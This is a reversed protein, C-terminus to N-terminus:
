GMLEGVVKKITEPMFPKRIYAKVGMSKLENIRTKSGETSIIVVPISKLLDRAQMHKIMEIGNMVPMNIDAFIIDVWSRDLLELANKGNEAELVTNIPINAISLTKILVRRIIRSDDVVLINYAM